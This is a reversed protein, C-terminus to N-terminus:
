MVTVAPRSTARCLPLSSATASRNCSTKLHISVTPSLISNCIQQLQDQKKKFHPYRPDPTPTVSFFRLCSAEFFIGIKSPLTPCSHLMGPARARNQAVAYRYPIHPCFVNRSEKGWTGWPRLGRPPYSTSPGSGTYSNTM